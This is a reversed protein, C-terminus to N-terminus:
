FIRYNFFKHASYYSVSILACSVASKLIGVATSPGFQAQVLGLRYVLTDIIDGAEYVQPSYLNFIQDFGANLINGLSLVMMLVIIMRMGPLTIHWTQKWRGGGDVAVAEYLSPDVSTITALYIVTSFGFNKWIDSAVMTFQFWQNEGLFYIPQFGLMKIFQNVIGTSPSLIDIMIGGLIIWSIFYPFYIITQATRKFVKGRVENLMLAFFIPVIMGVIIKYVAISLTNWIVRWINPMAFIFQFNAIGVWKQVGFLGKAINFNQFSIMIGVMPIYAFIILFIIGPLLMLHLPVERRLRYNKLM